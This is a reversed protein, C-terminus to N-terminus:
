RGHYVAWLKKVPTKARWEALSGRPTVLIDGPGVPLVDEGGLAVDVEGEILCAIEHYDSLDM